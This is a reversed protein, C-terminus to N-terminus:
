DHFGTRMSPDLKVDILLPGDLTAVCKEVGQMDEHGRVTVGTGGLSEAVASFDPWDFLSLDPARGILRLNHYEAGYSGDNLVVVIMPIRYRAATNFEALSMMLGGDGLVAVAVRSPVGIACGIATSLGLGVSGFNTTVVLSGPDPTHLHRWPALLFHGGDTVVTREVPLAEDLWMMAQRMDVTGSGELVTFVDDGAFAAIDAELTSSWTSNLDDDNLGAMLQVLSRATARADGVLGTTVPTWRAIHSPDDDCHILPKGSVLHGHDTTWQNLSAGFSIICDAQAIMEGAGSNSLTGFLGLNRPHGNFYGRGLLSTALPANLRDALTIIDQRAEARVAGRGALVIPRRSTALIGVASDLADDSPIAPQSALDSLVPPTYDVEENELTVPITLVVPRRETRARRVATSFDEIATQASRIRHIGAGTAAIVAAQDIQNPHSRNESPLEGALILMTTGNRSAETLGTVTNTLGPGHTVTCVGLRQTSRAYGDAMGVAGDEKATKVYRVGCSNVLEDVLIMNGEGM